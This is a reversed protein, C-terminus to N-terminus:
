SSRVCSRERFVDELGVGYYLRAAAEVDAGRAVKITHASAQSLRRLGEEMLARGLGRREDDFRFTTPLAIVLGAAAGAGRSMVM